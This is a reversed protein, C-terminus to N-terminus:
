VEVKGPFASPSLALSRFLSLPLKGLNPRPWHVFAQQVKDQFGHLYLGGEKIYFTAGITGDDGECKADYRDQSPNIYFQGNWATVLGYHIDTNPRVAQIAFRKVPPKAPCSKGTPAATAASAAMLAALLSALQM